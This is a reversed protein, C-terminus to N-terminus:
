RSPKLHASGAKHMSEALAGQAESPLSAVPHAAAEIRRLIIRIRARLERLDFPKTVYDEAGLELGVVRDIVDSAATLFLIKPSGAGNRLSRAIAFGDEGPMNVDLIVLDAPKEALLRRMAQGSIATRVAFGHGGLYEAVMRGLEPEDDVIILRRADEVVDAPAPGPRAPANEHVMPSVTAMDAQSTTAYRFSPFARLDRAAAALPGLPLGAEQLLRTGTECHQRAEERRGLRALLTVLAARPGAAFCDLEVLRKAHPLAEEPATAALRRALADLVAAHHRRADEREALCWIQFNPQGPLEL